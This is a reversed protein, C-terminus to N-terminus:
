KGKYLKNQKGIIKKFEKCNLELFFQRYYFLFDKVSMGEPLYYVFQQISESIHHWDIYLVFGHADVLKVIKKTLVRTEKFHIIDKEQLPRNCKVFYQISNLYESMFTNNFLFETQKDSEIELDLIKEM